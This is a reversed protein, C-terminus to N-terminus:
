WGADRQDSGASRLPIDANETEKIKQESNLTREHM